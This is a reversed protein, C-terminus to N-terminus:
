VIALPPIYQLISWSRTITCQVVSASSFLFSIQAIQCRAEHADTSTCKCHVFQRTQRHQIPFSLKNRSCTFIDPLRILFQVLLMAAGIKGGGVRTCVDCGNMGSYWDDYARGDVCGVLWAYMLLLPLFSLFSPVRVSNRSSERLVLAADGNWINCIRTRLLISSASCGTPRGAVAERLM